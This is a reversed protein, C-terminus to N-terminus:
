AGLVRPPRATAKWLGCHNRTGDVPFDIGDSRAQVHSRLVTIHSSASPHLLKGARSVYALRLNCYTMKDLPLLTRRVRKRRQKEETNSGVLFRLCKVAVIENYINGTRRQGKYVNSYSGEGDPQVGGILRRQRKHDAVWVIEWDRVLWEPVLDTMQTIHTMLRRLADRKAHDKKPHSHKM